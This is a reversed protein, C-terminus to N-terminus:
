ILQLANTSVVFYIPREFIEVTRLCFFSSLNLESKTTRISTDRVRFPVIYLGRRGCIFTNDGIKLTYGSM